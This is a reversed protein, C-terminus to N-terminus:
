EKVGCVFILEFHILSKFILDSIIFSSSSFMPLISESIFQLLITKLRDGLISIFVFIFM